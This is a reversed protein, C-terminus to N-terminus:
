QGLARAFSLGLCGLRPWGLSLLICDIRCQGGCSRTSIFHSTWLSEDTLRNSFLTPSDALVSITNAPTDSAVETSRQGRRWVKLDQQMVLADVTPAIGSDAVPLSPDYNVAGRCSVRCEPPSAEHEEHTVGSCVSTM